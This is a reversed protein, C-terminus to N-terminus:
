CNYMNRLKQIDRASLRDRQGIGAGADKPIITPVSPNVAFSYASYHMISGYDYPTNFPNVQGASYKDFNGETGSQINGWNITVYDDRDTRSQEHYFGIAHILEHSVIGKFICGPNGAQLNLDQAGGIRGVYSWCGSNPVGRIIRIYNAENSRQILRICTNSTIDAIGAMVVQLESSTFSSDLTYPVVAGPWRYNDGIIGAKMGPAFRMDGEFFEGREDINDKRVDMSPMAHCAVAFALLAVFLKM